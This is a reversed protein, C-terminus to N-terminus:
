MMGLAARLMVVTPRCAVDAQSGIGLRLISVSEGTARQKPSQDSAQLKVDMWSVLRMGALDRQALMLMVVVAATVLQLRVMQSCDVMQIDM